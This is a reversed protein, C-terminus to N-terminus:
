PPSAQHSELKMRSHRPHSAAAAQSQGHHAVQHERLQNCQIQVGTYVGVHSAAPNTASLRRRTCCKYPLNAVQRRNNIPSLLNCSNKSVNMRRGM